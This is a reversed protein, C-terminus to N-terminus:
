SGTEQCPFFTKRGDYLRMFNDTFAAGHDVMLIQGRVGDMLGSCLAVIANAVEAAQIEGEPFYRRVFPEIEEGFIGRLSETFVWFARVINIRVDHHFLHKTAYRCLTELVAKSAAVFDYNVKYADVGDSSLGIVYRPYAGFTTHIQRLYAFLPWVTLEMSQMLARWDYDELSRVASAAAVGSVFVEIRDHTQRIAALLEALDDANKVDAQVLRPAPAGAAAFRARVEDEDASGWRYTLTCRAGLAGFALGTALGIGATGGTILVAKDHFDNFM